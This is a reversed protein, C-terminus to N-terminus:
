LMACDVPPTSTPDSVNLQDGIKMGLEDAVGASVEIVKRASETPYFVKPYTEPAVSPLITVVTDADDLWIIDLPFNMDKMWFGYEGSLDYLFLMGRNEELAPRGSLGQRRDEVTDAVDLIFCRDAYEWVAYTVQDAAAASDDSPLLAPLIFWSAVLGLALVFFILILTVHHRKEM